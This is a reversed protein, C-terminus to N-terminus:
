AARRARDVAVATTGELGVVLPTETGCADAAIEIVRDWEIETIAWAEAALSLVVLGDAGEALMTRALRALEDDLIPQEPTDAFPVHLVPRVGEFM